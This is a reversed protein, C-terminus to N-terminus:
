SPWPNKLCCPGKQLSVKLLFGMYLSSCAQEPSSLHPLFPFALKDFYLEGFSRCVSNGFM